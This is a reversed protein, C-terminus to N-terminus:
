ITFKLEVAIDPTVIGDAGTGRCTQWNLYDRAVSHDFTKTDGATRFGAKRLAQCLAAVAPSRSGFRLRKTAAQSRTAGAAQAHVALERGTFLIYSAFRKGGDKTALSDAWTEPTKVFDPVASLGAATRFRAYDGTADVAPKGRGNPDDLVTYYGRIVQCGASDFQWLPKPKYAAHINVGWSTARMDWYAETSYMINKNETMVRLTPYISAQRFAAPQRVDRMGKSGVIPPTRKEPAKWKLNHTGLVFLFQGTPIMNAFGLGTMNWRPVSCTGFEKPLLEPAKEITLAQALIYGRDPVTSAAFLDIQKTATDWVGILCKLTAHDPTVSKLEIKTGSVPAGGTAPVCGRLGILVKTSGTADKQGTAKAARNSAAVPDFGNAICASQLVDHTLTFTDGALAFSTLHRLDPAKKADAVWSVVREPDAGSLLKKVRRGLATAESPGRKLLPNTYADQEALTTLFLDDDLELEPAAEGFATQPLASAAAMAVANTLFRRRNQM